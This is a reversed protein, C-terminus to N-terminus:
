TPYTQMNLPGGVLNDTPHGYVANGPRVCGTRLGEGNAGCVLREARAKSAPYNGFFGGRARLPAAFDAADLVQAYDRPWRWPRWWAAWMGVPRIAISASTTAVLVDAGATRAAALVHATGHVNVADCFGAVLPSRASPIIVAATHFVTLPLAAIAATPWPAAFAAATSEASRIDAQRFDVKSAPGTLM